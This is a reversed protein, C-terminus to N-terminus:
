KLARMIAPVFGLFGIAYAIVTIAFWCKQIFVMTRLYRVGQEVLEFVEVWEAPTIDEARGAGSTNKKPM